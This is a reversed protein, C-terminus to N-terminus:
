MNMPFGTVGQASQADSWNEVTVTFSIPSSLINTEGTGPKSNVNTGQPGTIPTNPSGPGTTPAGPGGPTTPITPNPDIKGAGHSFDLTYTYKKGPEWNKNLAIAAFAYDTTTGGQPYLVTTTQSTGTGDLSSICCLVSLYAGTKATSGDWPTLQQPILIFNDGGNITQETAGLTIPSTLMSMYANNADDGGASNNWVSSALLTGSATATSPYTFDGTTAVGVLKVGLVKIELKDNNNKAKIEIQSLAHQFNLAVGTSENNAKTGANCAVILDEQTALVGNPSFGTITQKSHDIGIAGHGITQPAYAFFKLDYNPWYYTSATTWSSGQNSVALDTFYNASNGVATVNFATLNSATTVSRSLAKDLSTRFAIGHGNNVDIVEDNSCSALAALAVAAFLFNTKM